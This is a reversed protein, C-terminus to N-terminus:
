DSNVVFDDTFLDEASPREEPLWRLIRRLFALVMERDKGELGTLRSELSQDPIPTKAIWNGQSDWYYAAKPSRKLFPKPPPGLISVMEALHLEDHLMGDRHGDFLSKEQLLDWVTLALSWIDIKSDWEMNMIVEPARYVGPMVDDTHKLGLRASDFDCIVPLGSTIPIQHSCYIVRDSLTKRASPKDREDKEVQFYVAPDAVGLLINNPSIDTHVTEAQHLFDLGILIVQVSQQVVKMDLTKRPFMNQFERFNLGLPEFIFCTHTGYPSQVEFHDLPIRLCPKGPHPGPDISKLHQSILLENNSKNKSGKNHANCLKLTVLADKELDRCLWVTSGTGFGLKAIIRYNKITEGIRAPYFREAKYNPLTEEEIRMDRPIEPWGDAPVIHATSAGRIAQDSPIM